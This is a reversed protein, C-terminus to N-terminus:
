LDARCFSTVALFPDSGTVEAHHQLLLLNLLAVRIHLIPLSHDLSEAPPYKLESPLVKSCNRWGRRVLAYACIVVTTQVGWLSRTGPVDGAWRPEKALIDPKARIVQLLALYDAKLAQRWLNL